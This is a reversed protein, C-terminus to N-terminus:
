RHFSKFRDGKEYINDDKELVIDEHGSSTMKWNIDVDSIPFQVEESADGLISFLYDVWVKIENANGRANHVDMYIYFHSM